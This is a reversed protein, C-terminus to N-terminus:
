VNSGCGSVEKDIYSRFAPVAFLPRLIAYAPINQFILEIGDAGRLIRGSSLDEVVVEGLRLPGTPPTQTSADVRHLWDLFEAAKAFRACKACDPNRYVRITKM